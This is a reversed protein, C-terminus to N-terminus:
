EFPLTKLMNYYNPVVTQNSSHESSNKATQSALNATHTTINPQGAMSSVFIRYSPQAMTRVIKHRLSSCRILTHQVINQQESPHQHGGWYVVHAAHM